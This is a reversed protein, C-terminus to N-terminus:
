QIAALYLAEAPAEYERGSVTVLTATSKGGLTAALTIKEVRENNAFKSLAEGQAVAITYTTSAMLTSTGQPINIEASATANALSGALPASNVTTAAGRQPTLTLRVTNGVPIGTTAFVVTAPNPSAAPLIVDGAGSPTAPAAVGAVSTFSLTPLGALTLTGTTLIEVRIRGVGGNGGQGNDELGGSVNLTGSNVVNAAAIRIAGGSGGGGTNGAKSGPIGVFNINGSNGGKALISGTITVTGSSAIL